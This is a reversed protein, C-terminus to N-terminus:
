GVRVLTGCVRASEHQIPGVGATDPSVPSSMEKCCNELMDVTASHVWAMASAAAAEGKKM